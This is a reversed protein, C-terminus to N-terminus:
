KEVITIHGPQHTSLAAARRALYIFFAAVGGLVFGIVALLSMIGMNMGKALASDSAGFCTACGFASSPAALLGALLWGSVVQVKGSLTM